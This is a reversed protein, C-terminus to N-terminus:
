RRVRVVTRNVVNVAGAGSYASGSDILGGPGSTGGTGGSGTSSDEVDDGSDVISGGQGGNGGDSGDAQNWGTRAKAFVGNRVTTEHNSTRVRVDGEDGGECGCLDVLVNTSNVDNGVVAETVADGTIVTGGLSSHGGNGGRGTSSGEVDEGGNVISGGNGGDGGISGGAINGGTSSQAVVLNGVSASNETTVVVNGALVPLMSMAIASASTLAIIKKM